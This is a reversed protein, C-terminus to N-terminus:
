YEGWEYEEEISIYFDIDNLGDKNSEAIEEAEVMIVSKETFRWAVKNNDRSKIFVHYKKTNEENFEIFDSMFHWLRILAGSITRRDVAIDINNFAEKLLNFDNNDLVDAKDFNYESVNKEYADITKQQSEVFELVKKSTGGSITDLYEMYLLWKKFENVNKM